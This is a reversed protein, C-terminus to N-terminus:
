QAIEGGTLEHAPTGSAIAERHADSLQRVVKVQYQGLLGTMKGLVAESPDNVLLVVEDIQLSAILLGNYLARRILGWQRVYHSGKATSLWTAQHKWPRKSNLIRDTAPGEATQLMAAYVRKLVRAEP